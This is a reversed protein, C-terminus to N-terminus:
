GRAPFCVREGRGRAFPPLAVGNETLVSRHVCIERGVRARGLSMGDFRRPDDESRRVLLIQRYDRAPLAHFEFRATLTRPVDPGALTRARVRVDAIVNLSLCQEGAPLPETCPPQGLVTDGLWREALILSVPRLNTSQADAAAAASFALLPM